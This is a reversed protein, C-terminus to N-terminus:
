KIKKDLFKLIIENVMSPNDQNANHAANKIMHCRCTNAIKNWYRLAEKTYLTNDYEDYLFLIAKNHNYKEEFHYAKTTALILNIYDRRGINKYCGEVYKQIDINKSCTKMNHKILYTWPYLRLLAPTLTMALKELITLKKTNCNSGILILKEVKNPYRYTVEQAIQGGQSHGIFTAKSCDERKMIKIIDEVVINFSLKNGLPRSKGHGREDWLLINYIKPIANIQDKFMRHDCGVGHLFILWNDSSNKSVWYHVPCGLRTYIKKDFSHSM